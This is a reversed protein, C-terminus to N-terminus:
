RAGCGFGGTRPLCGGPLMGFRPAPFESVIPEPRMGSDKSVTREVSLSRPRSLVSDVSANTSKACDGDWGLESASTLFICSSIAPFSRTLFMTGPTGPPSISRPLM